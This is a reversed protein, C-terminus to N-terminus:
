GERRLRAAYFGDIGGRDGLHSPLTRLDGDPTLCEGLGGIEGPGIPVRRFGPHHQLFARIQNEGEEPELSCTCYVLVGGPKLWLPTTDLLRAQIRVLRDLDSSRKLVPIDPHRRITGTATCPADVLVGDFVEGPRWQTADAAVMDAELSLRRLTDGVLRLRKPSIDVCTVRAGAAALQATKGGPAACVDAVAAGVGRDAMAGLLLRAPLAAAADQVWWQGAAFGALDSVIGGQTTRLSGTPLLEAGIRRAWAEEEGPTRVTLDLPPAELHARSIARQTADGFHRRWRERLWDPTNLHAADQAEAVPGGERGARRLVANVLGKAFSHGRAAVLEVSTNVAAHAPTGLFLLQALGLRLVDRVEAANAKIPRDLLRDLIDDIQGLRRLVTAVLLRAFARDRQALRTTAASQDLAEDLPRQRHLVAGLLDLALARAAPQAIDPPATRGRAGPLAADPGNPGAGPGPTPLTTMPRGIEPEPACEVPDAAAGRPGTGIVACCDPPEAARGTCIRRNGGATKRTGAGHCVPAM